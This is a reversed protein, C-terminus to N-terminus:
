RTTGNTGNTGDTGTMGEAGTGNTANGNSKTNIKYEDIENTKENKQYIKGNKSDVYFQGVREGKSNSSTDYLEFSYGKNNNDYSVLDKKENRVEYKAGNNGRGMEQLFYDHADAYNDFGNSGDILDSVADGAGEAVDGVADGVDQAADGVASGANDSTDNTTNGANNETTTASDTANNVGGCGTLAFAMVAFVAMLVMMKKIKKM